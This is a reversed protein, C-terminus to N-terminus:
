EGAVRKRYLGAAIAQYIRSRLRNLFDDVLSPPYKEIEAPRGRDYVDLISDGIAIGLANTDGYLICNSCIVLDDAGNYWGGHESKEGCLICSLTRTIDPDSKGWDSLKSM